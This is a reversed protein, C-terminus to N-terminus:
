LERYDNGEDITYIVKGLNFAILANRCGDCPCALGQIMSTKYMNAYKMRAIYMTSKSFEEPSLLRSANKICDIEAHLHISEPNRAFKVQIPHTKLSNIGFAVVSNKYVISAAIRAAGVPAVDRAIKRLTELQKQHKDQPM